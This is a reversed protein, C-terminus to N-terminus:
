LVVLNKSWNLKQYAQDYIEMALAISKNIYVGEIADGSAIQQQPTVNQNETIINRFDLAINGLGIETLRKRLAEQVRTEKSKYEDTKINANDFAIKPSLPPM